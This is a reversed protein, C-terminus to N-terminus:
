LFKGQNQSLWQNNPAFRTEADEVDWGDMLDRYYKAKQECRQVIADPQGTCLEAATNWHLYARWESPFEIDETLSIPNTIQTQMLLHVAGLTADPEDPTPWFTVKLQAALKEVVFQNVSGQNAVATGAQGLMWYDRLSIQLLPRRNGGETYLYYAEFVRLPKTMDVSGGPSFTYAAQGQTLPVTIDTNKWLRLGGMQATNVVDRLRRMGKALQDGDPTQGKKLLGSDDLADVLVAYPTNISPTTM